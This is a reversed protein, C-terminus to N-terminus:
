RDFVFRLKKDGYVRKYGEKEAFEREKLGMKCAHNYLTKKHMVWRDESVYWYDPRIEGDFRFNCAKYLAGDHNFTTDCYSVVTKIKEPLMKICRTIMWSGFNKKQYKPHICFRSLERTQDKDYPMNGRLLTSFACVAILIDDIFAGIMIGGRGCGSLYHYKDLLKNATKVDIMRLQVNDFTFDVIDVKSIGMWYKILEIIKDKCKFEHEWLYKLEYEPFNNIIYSRKQADRIIRDEKSHFYDGQCEILLDPMNERPIVCDFNYPGIITEPDNDSDDYERYYKINLDDLVSYLHRQISSVIPQRTQSRVLAMREKFLPDSWIRLQLEKMKSRKEPDSWIETQIKSMRDRLEPDSWIDTQIKSMRDRLEPDSWIETLLASMTNCKEDDWVEKQSRMQRLVYDPDGWLKKTNDSLFQCLDKTTREKADMSARTRKEPTWAEKMKISQNVAFKEKNLEIGYNACLRQIASISGGIITSIEYLSHSDRLRRIEDVIEPKDLKSKCKLKAATKSDRKLGLHKCLKMITRRPYGIDVGIDAHTKGQIFLERVRTKQIDTFTNYIPVSKSM